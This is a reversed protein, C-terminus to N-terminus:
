AARLLRTLSEKVEAWIKRGQPDVSLYVALVRLTAEEVVKAPTVAALEAWGHVAMIGMPNFGVALSSKKGSKLSDFGDGKFLSEMRGLLEKDHASELYLFTMARVISSEKSGPFELTMKKLCERANTTFFPQIQFKGRKSTHLKALWGNFKGQVDSDWLEAGCDSCVTAKTRFTEGLFKRKTIGDKTRPHFCDNTV